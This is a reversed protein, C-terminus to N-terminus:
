RPPHPRTARSHADEACGGRQVAPQEAAQDALLALAPGGAGRGAAGRCPLSSYREEQVVPRGAPTTRDPRSRFWSMTQTLSEAVPRGIGRDAFWAFWAYGVGEAIPARVTAYSADAPLRDALGVISQEDGGHGHLLVV